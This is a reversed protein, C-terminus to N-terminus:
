NRGYRKKILSNLVDEARQLALLADDLERQADATLQQLEIEDKQIKKLMM